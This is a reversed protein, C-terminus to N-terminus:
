HHHIRTRRHGGSIGQPFFGTRRRTMNVCWFFSLFPSPPGRATPAAGLEVEACKQQTRVKNSYKRAWGPRRSVNAKDACPGPTVHDSKPGETM